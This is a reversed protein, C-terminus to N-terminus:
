ECVEETTAVVNLRYHKKPIQLLAWLVIIWILPQRLIYHFQSFVVLAIICAAVDVRGNRYARVVALLILITLLIVGLAGVQLGWDIITNHSETNSFPVDIGSFTGPGLGVLPSTSFATVGNEWLGVRIAGQNGESKYVEEAIAIGESFLQFSDVFM